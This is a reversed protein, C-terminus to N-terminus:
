AESSFKFKSENKDSNVTENLKWFFESVSRQYQAEIHMPASSM